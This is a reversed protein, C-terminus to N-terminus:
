GSCRDGYPNLGILVHTQLHILKSSCQYSYRHDSWPETEERSLVSKHLVGEARESVNRERGVSM